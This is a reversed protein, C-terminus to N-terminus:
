FYSVTSTLRKRMKLKLDRLHPWTQDQSGKGEDRYWAALGYLVQILINVDLHTFKWCYSSLPETNVDLHIYKQFYSTLQETNVGKM